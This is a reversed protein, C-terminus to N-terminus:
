GTPTLHVLPPQALMEILLLRLNQPGRPRSQVLFAHPEPIAFFVLPNIAKANTKRSAPAPPACCFGSSM